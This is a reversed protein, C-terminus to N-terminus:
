NTIGLIINHHQPTPDSSRQKVCPFSCRPTGSLSLQSLQKDYLKLTNHLYQIPTFSHTRYTVHEGSIYLVWNQKLYLEPLVLIIKQTHYFKLHRLTIILQFQINYLSIKASTILPDFLIFSLTRFLTRLAPCTKIKGSFCSNSSLEVWQQCEYGLGQCVCCRGSSAKWTEHPEMCGTVVTTYFWSQEVLISQCTSAM